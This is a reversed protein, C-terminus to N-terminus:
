LSPSTPSYHMPALAVSLPTARSRWRRTSRGRGGGGIEGIKLRRATQSSSCGARDCTTTSCPPEAGPQLLLLVPAAAPSPSRLTESCRCLYSRALANQRCISVWRTPRRATASKAAASADPRCGLDIATAAWRRRHPARQRLHERRAWQQRWQRRLGH